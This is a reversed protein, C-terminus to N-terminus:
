IVLRGEKAAQKLEAQFEASHYKAPDENIMKIIEASTLRPATPAGSGGSETQAQRAGELGTPKSTTGLDEQRENNQQTVAELISQRDRWGDLLIRASGVEGQVTAEALRAREPSGYAWQKFEDSTSLEDIEPYERRFAEAEAQARSQTLQQTIPELAKAVSREVVSTISKTPDNLLQDSTLELPEDAAQAGQPEPNVGRKGEAYESVLNRWIGVENAQEGIKSTAQKHMEIIEAVSKGRYTPDLDEIDEPLKLDLPNASTNPATNDGEGKGAAANQLAEMAAREQEPDIVISRRNDSM